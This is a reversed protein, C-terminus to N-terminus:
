AFFQGGVCRTSDCVVHRHYLHTRCYAAFIKAEFSNRREIINSTNKSTISNYCVDPYHSLIPQNSEDNNFSM